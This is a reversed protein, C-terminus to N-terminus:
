ETRSTIGETRRPVLSEETYHYQSSDSGNVIEKNEQGKRHIYERAITAYSSAM